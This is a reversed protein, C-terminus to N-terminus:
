IAWAKGGAEEVTICAKYEGPVPLYNLFKTGIEETNLYYAVSRNKLDLYSSKLQQDDSQELTQLLDIQKDTDAKSFGEKDMHAKLQTFGQSYKEQGEKGMVKGIMIDIMKHVGVASAAPSDTAPLIVDVLQEVWAMEEPSFFYTEYDVGQVEAQCSSFLASFAPLGMATGTATAALQLAKRRNM